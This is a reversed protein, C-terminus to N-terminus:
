DDKVLRMLEHEIFANKLTVNLFFGSKAPDGAGAQKLEVKEVANNEAELNNVIAQAM